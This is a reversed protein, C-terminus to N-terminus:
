KGRETLGREKLWMLIRNNELLVGSQRELAEGVMEQSTALVNAAVTLTIAESVRKELVEEVRRIKIELDKELRHVKWILYIIAIGPGGYKLLESLVTTIAQEM